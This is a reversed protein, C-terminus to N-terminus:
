SFGNNLVKIIKNVLQKTATFVLCWFVTGIFTEAMDVVRALHLFM